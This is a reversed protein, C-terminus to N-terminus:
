HPKLDRHLIGCQHAYHIAQAITKVYRAAREAPLPTRRVIVSLSNGEVYEMSLYHRGDHEGVEHIAVVNPHQLTAAAKAESYFRKIEADGALPGSIMLKLAVVRNLNRQRAKWVVGMGGQGIPEILEYNGFSRSSDSAQLSAADAASAALGLLCRPCYGSASADSITAGCESCIKAM